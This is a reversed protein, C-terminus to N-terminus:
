WWPGGEEKDRFSDILWRGFSMRKHWYNYCMAICFAVTVTGVSWFVVDVWDRRNTNHIVQLVYIIWSVIYFKRSVDRASKRRRIKNGQWVYKFRVPVGLILVLAAIVSAFNM